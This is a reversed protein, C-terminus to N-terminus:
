NSWTLTTLYRRRPDNPGSGIEVLYGKAVLAMLRPRTARTTRGILRAIASTTLGAESRRVHQLIDRDIDDTAPDAIAIAQLTVRVRGGLEEIKPPPLGADACAATMRPIGSGWQEIYGLERFVRAIVRNRIRSVGSRMDDVTMGFPLLGPSEVEVRDEYVGVRVPAGGQSYDAHVAANMIAERVAIQPVPRVREHRVGQMALGTTQHRDVFAIAEEVMTPLRADIDATDLIVSRDLGAFPGAQIWADPFRARGDRGFLLVGGVTARGRAHAVTM